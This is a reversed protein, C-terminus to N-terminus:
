MGHLPLKPQLTRMWSILKLGIPMTLQTSLFRKKIVLKEYTFVKRQWVCLGMRNYIEQTIEYNYQERGERSTYIIEAFYRNTDKDHYATWNNGKKKNM